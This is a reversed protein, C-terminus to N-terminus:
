NSIDTPLALANRKALTVAEVLTISKARVNMCDATVYPNYRKFNDGHGILLHCEPKDMCLVILNKPELELEPRLHFPVRHHVQLLRDSGCCECVPNAALVAKRVGAWKSSRTIKKAHERVVSHAVKLAHVITPIM